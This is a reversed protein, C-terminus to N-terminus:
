LRPNRITLHHTCKWVRGTPDNPDPRGPPTIFWSQWPGSPVTYRECRDRIPCGQGGCKTIDSM